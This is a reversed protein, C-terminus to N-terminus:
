RSELSLLPRSGLSAECYRFGLPPLADEVRMKGSKDVTVMEGGRYSTPLRLVRGVGERAGREPKLRM